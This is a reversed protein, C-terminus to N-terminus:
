SVLTDDEQAGADKKQARHTSHGELKFRLDKTAHQSRILDDKAKDHTRRANTIQPNKTSYGYHQQLSNYETKAVQFNYEFKKTENQKKQHESQLM